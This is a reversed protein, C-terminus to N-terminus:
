VIQKPGKPGEDISGKGDPLPPDQVPAPPEEGPPVPVQEVEPNEKKKKKIEEARDPMEARYAPLSM